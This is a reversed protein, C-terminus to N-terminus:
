KLIKMQAFICNKGEDLFIAETISTEKPIHLEVSRECEHQTIREKKPLTCSKMEEKQKVHSSSNYIYINVHPIYILRDLDISIGNVKEERKNTSLMRENVPSSHFM